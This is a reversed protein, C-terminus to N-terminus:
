TRKAGDPFAYLTRNGDALGCVLYVEQFISIKGSNIKMCRKAILHAALNSAGWTFILQVNGILDVLWSLIERERLSFYVVVTVFQLVNEQYRWCSCEELAVQSTQRWVSSSIISTRKNKELSKQGFYKQCFHKKSTSIQARFLYATHGSFRRWIDIFTALFSKVLFIFPKSLM